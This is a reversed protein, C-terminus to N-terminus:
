ELNRVFNNRGHVNINMYRRGGVSTWQDTTGCLKQGTKIKDDIENKVKDKVIRNYDVVHERIKSPNMPLKMGDRAM